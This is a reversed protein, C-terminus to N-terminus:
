KVWCHYDRDTQFATRVLYTHSHHTVAFHEGVRAVSVARRCPVAEQRAVCGLVVSLMHQSKDLLSYLYTACVM